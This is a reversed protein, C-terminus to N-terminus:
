AIFGNGNTPRAALPIRVAVTTGKGPVGTIEVKGGVLHAREQMGLLGLSRRGSNEDKTIGRGNDSASVVFGGDKEEIAIEVRTAQAHRLVNTLAEQLIRFVATSQEQNLPVGEAPCECIRCEIGTRSQFQAAQWEIADVLGLDLTAPRLDSAIRKVTTVIADTQKMMTAVQLRLTELEPGRVSESFTRDLGELSWNLATLSSGLEDHIERAIRAREEERACQLRTAFARLQDSSERLGEEALKRETIDESIGAFRYVRGSEDRVPFGRDRIWRISQDPRVIRFKIDFESEATTEVVHTVFERDEPHIIGIFPLYDLDRYRSERNRGTMKEYIPSLYLVRKFDPTRIWFLERINEALQRFREESERLAEEAQKRETIDEAIGGVRYIRGSQDRIPFGRDRIWRIEGHRNLIRYEVEFEREKNKDFADLVALRDAPYVDSERSLCDDNAYLSEATRGCVKEYMPSIYLLRKFDPTRIWFVEQINETLQRFREESERLAEEDRKRKTIDQGIGIGAGDSLHLMAWSTDIVRGDRVTTKFDAWEANRAEVFKRVQERYEPDPYNEVLIDINDRVIEELSWGLTRKWARNVLRLKNDAGVFNIMVPIHDFITQLIEKQQRLENEVRQREVIERRLDENVAALATTREVVRHELEDGPKIEAARKSRSTEIVERVGHRLAVAYRHVGVADFIETGRSESLPFNCLAIMRKGAVSRSVEREFERFHRSDQKQMATPSGGIRMGAFGRALVSDLFADMHNAIGQPGFGGGRYYRHTPPRIELAGAALYRDLEPVAQRFADQAESETLPDLVVWLCFENSELGARFYPVLTDLLDQKTEYFNCFHTGWPVDRM